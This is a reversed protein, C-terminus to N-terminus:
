INMDVISYKMDLSGRSPNIDIIELHGKSNNNSIDSGKLIVHAGETYHLGEPPDITLALKQQDIIAQNSVDRSNYLIIFHNYNKAPDIFPNTQGFDTGHDSIYLSMGITESDLRKVVILNGQPILLHSGAPGILDMRMIGFTVGCPVIFALIMLVCLFRYPSRSLLALYGTGAIPKVVRPATGSRKFVAWTMFGQIALVLVFLIFVFVLVQATIVFYFNYLVYGLIVWFFVIWIGGGVGAFIGAKWADKGNRIILGSEGCLTRSVMFSGTIVIAFFQLLPILILILNYYLAPKWFAVCILLFFLVPLGVFFNGASLGVKLPIMIKSNAVDIGKIETESTIIGGFDPL